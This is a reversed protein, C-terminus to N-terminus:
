KLNHFADASDDLMAAFRRGDPLTPLVLVAATVLPAGATWWVAGEAATACEAPPQPPDIPPEAALRAALEAPGLDEDLAAFGALEAVELWAAARSAFDAPAGEVPRAFTLPFHRGARDVSPMWLGLMATPGCLGAPLLFRWIPAQMWAADWRPGLQQRAGAMAAQLWDDWPRVFAASLGLGVFDGRGPLKGYFGATANFSPRVPTTV